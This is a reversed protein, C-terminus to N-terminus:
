RTFIIFEIARIYSWLSISKKGDMFIMYPERYSKILNSYGYSSLARIAFNENEIILHQGKLKEIQEEPTSYTINDM